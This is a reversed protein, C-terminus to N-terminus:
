IYVTSLAGSHEKRLADLIADADANTLMGYWDSHFFWELNTRLKENGDKLATRYDDAAVAVIANALNQYPNIDRALNDLSVSGQRMQGEYMEGKKCGCSTTRGAKLNLGYAVCTQGCDCLCVWKTQRNDPNSARHVVTLNGFRQGVLSTVPRGM